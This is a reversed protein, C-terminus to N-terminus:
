DTGAMQMRHRSGHAASMINLAQVLISRMLGNQDLDHFNGENHPTQARVRTYMVTSVDKFADMDIVAGFAPRILENEECEDLKTQHSAPSMPQGPLKLDKRAVTALYNDDDSDIESRM